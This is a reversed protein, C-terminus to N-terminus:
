FLINWLFFYCSMDFYFRSPLRQIGKSMFNTVYFHVLQKVFISNCVRVVVVGNDVIGYM